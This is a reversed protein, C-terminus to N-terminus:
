RRGFHITLKAHRYGAEGAPIAVRLTRRDQSLQGGEVDAITGRLGIDYTKGSIGAIEYSVSDNKTSWTENVIKLNESVAGLEPLNQEIELAFDDQLTIRITTKTSSLPAEVLVHQDTTTKQVDFKARRGNVEVRTVKARPSVAPAFQLRTGNANKATANLTMAGDTYKYSLDVTSSGIHVNRANWWTWNGPLHPAITLRKAITSAEIGLMGRVIPSVVM